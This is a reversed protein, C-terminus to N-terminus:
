IENHIIHKNAHKTTNANMMRDTVTLFTCIARWFLETLNILVSQASELNGRRESSVPSWSKNENAM